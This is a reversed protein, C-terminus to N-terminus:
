QLKTRTKLRSEFLRSPWLWAPVPVTDSEHLARRLQWWSVLTGLWSAVAIYRMTGLTGGTVAGVLGASVQLVSTLIVARLSRRAAGLAHLGLVAGSSACMSMIALTTPLVLPYTPRWLSGLMLHGLGRPLAVLLVVGWVLGLLTLLTSFAACFLPLQRPSRRLLRAAEPWMILSMGFYIIKFPGM